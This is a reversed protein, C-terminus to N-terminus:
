EFEALYKQIFGDYLYCVNEFDHLFHWKQQEEIGHQLNEKARVMLDTENISTILDNHVYCSSLKKFLQYNLCRITHIPSALSMLISNM